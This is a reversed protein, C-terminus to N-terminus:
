LVVNKLKKEKLYLSPEVYFGAKFEARCVGLHLSCSAEEGGM